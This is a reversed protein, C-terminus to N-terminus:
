PQGETTAAGGRRAIDQFYRKILLRYEAPSTDGAAQLIDNRLESPLKAWDSLTLGAQKLAVLDNRTTPQRVANSPNMAFRSYAARSALYQQLSFPTLGMAEARGAVHEEAAHLDQAATAAHASQQTRAAANAEEFGQAIDQGAEENEAMAEPLKLAAAAEAYMKGARELAEAAHGLHEASATEPPLAQEPAGATLAQHAQQEATSAQGLFQTAQSAAESAPTQPFLQSLRGQVAGTEQSLENTQEHLEEQRPAMAQPVQNNALAAIQEALRQQRGALDAAEPPLDQAAANDDPMPAKSLREALGKLQEAAQAANKAAEPLELSQMKQAAAQTARAAEAPLNDPQPAVESVQPALEATEEAVAGQEKQLRAIEDNQLQQKLQQRQQLVDQVQKRLDAQDRSLLAMQTARETRREAPPSQQAQDRLAKALAEATGAAARSAEAAKPTEQKGLAAASEQMAPAPNNQKLAERAQPSVTSGYENLKEAQAQLQPQRQALSVLQQQAVAADHAASATQGQPTGAQAQATEIAQKAQAVQDALARQDKALQEAQAALNAAAEQQRLAAAQNTLANEAAQQKEVAAGLQDSRINEAAASMPPKQEASFQDAAAREALKQQAEALAQLRKDTAALDSVAKTDSALGKQEEQLKRARGALDELKKTDAAVQAQLAEPTQRMFASLDGVLDQQSQQWYKNPDEPQPSANEAALKQAALADERSALDHLAEMQRLADAMADFQKLLDSVKTIASGIRTDAEAGAAARQVKDDLLGVQGAADQAKAIDENSVSNLTEEIPAFPTGLVKQAVDRVAEDAATLHQSVQSLQDQMPQTLTEAAPLDARLQASSTKSTKLEKLALELGARVDEELSARVQTAYDPAEKDVVITYVESQTEHPGKMEPPLYDRARLRFEVRGAGQLAPSTLDISTQGTASLTLGQEDPTLPIAIPSVDRGDMRLILDVNALGLDDEAAYIVPLSDTPKLHTEKSRPHAILVSPPLDPVAEIAYDRKPNTFAYQDTVTMHWYGKLGATLDFSFSCTTGGDDAARCEGAVGAEADGLFIDAIGVPKDVHATVTVRTGVVASIDGAANQQVLPKRHTYAPYEYRVDFGKIEPPPSVTVNYYQTLADSARVRYQFDQGAPPLAISFHVQSDKSDNSQSLSLMPRVTTAGDRARIHVDAGRVARNSTLVEIRLSEGPKIVADGPTVTLEDAAVNPLNMFPALARELLRSTKDPWGLLLGTLIALALGAALLFPRAGRLTVERRPQLLRIDQSAETVLAAILANSGRVEPADKSALLEVASSIREQLEPHKSEVARAIGALTFSHALPRVLFVFAAGLTVALAWCSLAWRPWSPIFTVTVDVSMVLLVCLTAVAAVGCAGRLFIVWRARRILRRLTAGIMEPLIGNTQELSVSM